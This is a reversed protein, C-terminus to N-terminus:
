NLFLLATHNKKKIVLIFIITLAACLVIKRNEQVETVGYTVPGPTHSGSM